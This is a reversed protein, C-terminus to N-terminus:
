ISTSDLKIIKTATDFPPFPINVIPKLETVLFLDL